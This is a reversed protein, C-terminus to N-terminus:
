AQTLGFGNCRPPSRAAWRPTMDRSLAWEMAARYNDIEPEIHTRWAITSAAGYRADAAEAQERFYEAHHQALRKREGNRSLKELAYAATSELLRYREREGSTDAVVLSKDTLSALLDFVDGEDEDERGCLAVVGELSVWRRLHGTTRVFTTRASHAPLLELRDARAFTKQRPLATRSGGTLINFRENLRRALTPISLM